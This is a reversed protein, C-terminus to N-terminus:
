ALVAPRPIHRLLAWTDPDRTEDKCFLSFRALIAFPPAIQRACDAFYRSLSLYGLDNRFIRSGKRPPRPPWQRNTLCIDQYIVEIVVRQAPFHPTALEALFAVHGRAAFGFPWDGRYHHSVLVLQFQPVAADQTPPPASLPFSFTFVMECAMDTTM